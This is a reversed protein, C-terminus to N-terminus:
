KPPEKLSTLEHIAADRQQSVRILEGKLLDNERRAAELEAVLKTVSDTVQDGIEPLDDPADDPQDVREFGMGLSLITPAFHDPARFFSASGKRHEPVFMQQEVSIQEVNKPFKFWM